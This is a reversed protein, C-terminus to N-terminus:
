VSDPDLPLTDGARHESLAEEALRELQPSSERLKKDFAEEAEIEQLIAAALEDQTEDPLRSATEFARKLADTM